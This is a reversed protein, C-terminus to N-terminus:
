RVGSLDFVYARGKDEGRLSFSKAGVSAPLQFLMRVKVEEGPRLDSRPLREPRSPRYLTTGCHQTTIREDNADMVEATVSCDGYSVNRNSTRPYPNRLNFTVWLWRNGEKLNEGPVADTSFLASEFKVDLNYTPYYTGAQGQVRELATTPDNTEAFPTGLGKLLPRLDYRLVPAKEEGTRQVILKPLTGQASVVFVAYADVRQAPKLQVRLADTEGDRAIIPNGFPEPSVNVDRSDVVTFRYSTTSLEVDTKQPNQVSFRVLLIKQTSTTTFPNTGIATTALSLEASKLTFNLPSRQGVSYAQNPKADAGALQTTGQAGMQAGAGSPASFNVDIRGKAEKIEAGASKLASLSVYREGNVVLVPRRAAKNNIFLPITTQAVAVAAGLAGLFVLGMMTRNM